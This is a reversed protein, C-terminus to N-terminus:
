RRKGALYREALGTPARALWADVIAARLARKGIARLQILVAPYGDFHAITFVGKTGAALVAEKEGLDEVTVALIPGDPPAADGFRKIDAKSFPREWAFAKGGVLWTRQGHRTGEEVEPLEGLIEIVDDLGAM